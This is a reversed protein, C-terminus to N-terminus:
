TLLPIGYTISGTIIAVLPSRSTDSSATCKKFDLSIGVAVTIVGLRLSASTKASMDTLQSLSMVVAALRIKCSKPGCTTMM